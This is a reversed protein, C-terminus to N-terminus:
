PTPSDPTRPLTRRLMEEELAVLAFALQEGQLTPMRRAMYGLLPNWGFDGSEQWVIRTGNEQSVLTLVGEIRIMGGEVEVAYTIRGNPDVQGLTFTGKGYGPDDWRFGGGAGRDPGFLELGSDPSPTWASWAQAEELLPFISEPPAALTREAEAEWTSPLLIGVLVFTLTVFALTGM